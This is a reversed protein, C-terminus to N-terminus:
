EDKINRIAGKIKEAIQTLEEKSVKIIGPVFGPENHRPFIHVHAHPVDLGYTAYNVFQPNLAKQMASTIKRVIEWYDGFNPIDYVWQYHSKPIVLTHGKVRPNIDLFAFFDKDEYVKYSPLEGRVIKCFICNDM